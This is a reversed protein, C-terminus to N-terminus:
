ESGRTADCKFTLQIKGKSAVHLKKKKETLLSLELVKGATLHGKMNIFRLQEKIRNM